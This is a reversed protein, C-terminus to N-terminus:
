AKNFQYLWLWKFFRVHNPQKTEFDGLVVKNDHQMSYFDLLDALINLFYQSNQSPPKNIGIFLWKEKKLNIEYPISQIDFPLKYAQLKRAPLSGTVYILEGWSNATVDLWFPKHFGPM